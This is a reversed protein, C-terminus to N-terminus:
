KAQKAEFYPNPILPPKEEESVPRKLEAERVLISPTVVSAVDDSREPLTYAKKDDGLAVIDRLMRLTPNTFVAGRVLEEKGTAVNVKFLEVPPLLVLESPDGKYSWTFPDFLTASRSMSYTRYSAMKKVVLVYELGEEKGLEILKSRLEAPTATQEPQVYVISTRGYHGRAHGNSQKLNRTPVRSMCFTQLVGKDVLTLKQAVVGEDDVSYGGMLSVGNFEPTLPDDVITLSRSAIKKGLKKKLVNKQERLPAYSNANKDWNSEHSCGFFPAVAQVLSAASTGEFLVPGIYDDVLPANSMAVVRAALDRTKKELLEADPLEDSRAAHLVECDCCWMGDKARAAASAIIHASKSGTRNKFGENNLFWRNDASCTSEVESTEVGPYDRFITSIRRITQRWKDRSVNLKQLPQILEAPKEKSLDPPREIVSSRELYDKKEGLSEVAKKYASDTQLWATHRISDYDDDATVTSDKETSEYDGSWDWPMYLRETAKSSDLNYDGVRLDVTLRRWRNKGDGSLAGFAASLHMTDSETVTYGLYFPPGHEKLKLRSCSRAMEDSLARFVVDDEAKVTASCTLLLLLAITNLVFLKKM